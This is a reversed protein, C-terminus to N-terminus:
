YSRIKTKQIEIIYAIISLNRFYLFLCVKVKAFKGNAFIAFNLNWHFNEEQLTTHSIRTLLQVLSCKANISQLILVFLIDIKNFLCLIGCRAQEQPIVSPRDCVGHPVLPSWDSSLIVLHLTCSQVREGPLPVICETIEWMCKDAFLCSTLLLQM